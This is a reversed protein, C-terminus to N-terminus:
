PSCLASSAPPQPPASTGRDRTSPPPAGMLRSSRYTKRVRSRTERRVSPMRGTLLGLSLRFRRSSGALLKACHGTGSETRPWEWGQRKQANATYLAPGYVVPNAWVRPHEADVHEADGGTTIHSLAPVRANVTRGCAIGIQVQGRIGQSEGSLGVIPWPRSTCNMQAREDESSIVPSIFSTCRSKHLPTPLPTRSISSMPTGRATHPLSRVSLREQLLRLAHVPQNRTRTGDAASPSLLSLFWSSGDARCAM